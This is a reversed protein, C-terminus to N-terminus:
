RCLSFHSCCLFLMCFFLFSFIYKLFCQFFLFCCAERGNQLSALDWSRLYTVSPQAVPISRPLPSSYPPQCFPGSTPLFSPSESALTLSLEFFSFFWFEPSFYSAVNRVFRFDDGDRGLLALLMQNCLCGKPNSHFGPVTDHELFLM